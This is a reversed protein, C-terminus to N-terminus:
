FTLISDDIMKVMKLLCGKCIREYFPSHIYASTKKQCYHCELDGIDGNEKRPNLIVKISNNKDIKLEASM